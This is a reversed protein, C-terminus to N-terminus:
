RTPVMAGSDSPRDVPTAAQPTATISSSKPAVTATTTSSPSEPSTRRDSEAPSQQPTAALNWYAGGDGGSDYSKTGMWGLWSGIPNYLRLVAIDHAAVTHDTNWGRYDSAYSQGGPGVAPAGNWYSPVFRM